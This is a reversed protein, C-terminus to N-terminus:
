GRNGIGRIAYAAAWPVGVGAGWLLAALGPAFPIRARAGERRRARMPYYRGV